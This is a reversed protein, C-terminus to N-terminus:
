QLSTRTPPHPYHLVHAVLNFAFIKKASNPRFSHLLNSVYKTFHTRSKITRSQLFKILEM